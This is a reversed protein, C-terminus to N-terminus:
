PGAAAPPPLGQCTFTTPPQSGTSPSNFVPLSPRMNSRAPQIALQPTPPIPAFCSAPHGPWSTRFAAQAASTLLFSPLWKQMNSSLATPAVPWPSPPTPQLQCLTPTLLLCTALCVALLVDCKHIVNMLLSPKIQLVTQQM